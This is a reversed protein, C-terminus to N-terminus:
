SPSRRYNTAEKIHERAITLVASTISSYPGKERAGEQFFQPKTIYWYRGRRELAWTSLQIVNRTRDLM